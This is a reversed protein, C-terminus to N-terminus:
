DSADQLLFEIDAGGSQFKVRVLRGQEDYWLERQEDGTMTYRDLTKGGHWWPARERGRFQFSINPLKQDSVSFFTGHGKLAETNWFVLPRRRPDLAEARGNITRVYAGAEARVEVDYSTGDDNTTGAAHVLRGNQWSERRQHSYRFVTVPGFKVALKSDFTLELASGDGSPAAVVRNYGIREGDRLVAYEYVGPAVAWAPATAAVLILVAVFVRQRMMRILAGSVLQGMPRFEM